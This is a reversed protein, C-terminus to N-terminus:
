AFARLFARKCIDNHYLIATNLLLTIHLSCTFSQLHMKQICNLRSLIRQRYYQVIKNTIPEPVLLLSLSQIHHQDCSQRTWTMQMLEDHIPCNSVQSVMLLVLARHQTQQYAPASKNLATFTIKDFHTNEGFLVM